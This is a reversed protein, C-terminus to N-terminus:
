VNANGTRPGLYVYNDGGAAQKRRKKAWEVYWPEDPASVLPAHYRPRYACLYELCQCAHVDGRTNPADTVVHMGALYQTKKKYRKIERELDPVAGRLIRLKPNGDPQIHLYTQTATMRAQIDDCGALFSSGTVNTKLGRNRMQETYLEALRRFGENSSNRVLGLGDEGSLDVM